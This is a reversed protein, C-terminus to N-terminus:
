RSEPCDSRPASIRTAALLRVPLRRVAAGLDISRAARRKRRAKAADAALRNAAGEEHLEAMRATALRYATTPDMAQWGKREDARGSTRPGETSVVIPVDVRHAM